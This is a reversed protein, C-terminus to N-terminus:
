FGSFLDSSTTVIESEEGAPQNLAIGNSRLEPLKELFVVPEVWTKLERPVVFM